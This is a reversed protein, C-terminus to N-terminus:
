GSAPVAPTPKENRERALPDERDSLQMMEKLQHKIATTSLITLKKGFRM